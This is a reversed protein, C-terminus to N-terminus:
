DIHNKISPTAQRGKKKHKDRTHLMGSLVVRAAAAHFGPTRNEYYLSVKVIIRKFYLNKNITGNESINNKFVSFSCYKQNLSYVKL